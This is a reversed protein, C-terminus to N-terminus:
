SDNGSIHLMVAEKIEEYKTQILWHGADLPIFTYPGKMYEHGMDISKQGIAPDRKCWILLTPTYIDGM